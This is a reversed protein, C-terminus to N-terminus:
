FDLVNLRFFRKPHRRVADMLRQMSHMTSDATTYLSPDDLLRAMTGDGDEVKALILNLRRSSETLNVMMSDATSMAVATSELTQEIRGSEMLDRLRESTVRLNELIVVVDSHNDKVMSDVMAFTENAQLLTESVKGEEAVRDVLETVKGTLARMEALAAGAADTMSAITGATRGEFVHGELVPAGTGPDVEIVVEGVIGKEGLTVVADERLDVDESMILEVRVSEQMIRMGAVEGMRIGRVQVRDGSRMGEVRAFDVLYLRTGKSLDINKLWMMGTVLMVLAVVTLVGVQFESFRRKMRSELTMFM